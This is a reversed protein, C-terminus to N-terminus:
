RFASEVNLPEASLHGGAPHTFAAAIFAVLVSLELDAPLHRHCGSMSRLAGLVAVAGVRSSWAMWPGGLFEALTVGLLAYLAGQM